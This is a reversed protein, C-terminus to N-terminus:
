PHIPVPEFSEGQTDHRMLGFSLGRFKNIALFKPIIAYSIGHM